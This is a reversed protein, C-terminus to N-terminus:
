STTAKNNKIRKPPFIWVCLHNIFFAKIEGYKTNERGTMENVRIHHKNAPHANVSRWKLKRNSGGGGGGGRKKERKKKKREKKQKEKKENM